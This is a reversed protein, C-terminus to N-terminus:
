LYDNLVEKEIKPVPGLSLEALRKDLKERLKSPNEKLLTKEIDILVGSYMNLMKAKTDCHMFELIHIPIQAIGIGTKLDSISLKIVAEDRVPVITLDYNNVKAIHGLGIIWGKKTALPVNFEQPNITIM